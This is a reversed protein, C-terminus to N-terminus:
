KDKNTSLESSLIYLWWNSRKPETVIKLDDTAPGEVLLASASFVLLAQHLIHKFSSEIFFFRVTM